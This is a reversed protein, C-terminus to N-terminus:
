SFWVKLLPIQCSEHCHHITMDHAYSFDLSEAVEKLGIQMMQDITGM